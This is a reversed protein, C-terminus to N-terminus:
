SRDLLGLISRLMQEGDERYETGVFTIMCLQDLVSPLVGYIEDEWHYPEASINTPYLTCVLQGRPDFFETKTVNVGIATETRMADFTENSFVEISDNILIGIHSLEERCRKLLSQSAVACLYPRQHSASLCGDLLGKPVGDVEEYFRVADPDPVSPHQEYKGSQSNTTIIHANLRVIADGYRNEAIVDDRDYDSFPNDDASSGQHRWWRRNAEIPSDWIM